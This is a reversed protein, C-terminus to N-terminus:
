WPDNGVCVTNAALGGDEPSQLGISQHSGRKSRPAARAPSRAPIYMFEGGRSRASRPIWTISARTPSNSRLSRPAFLGGGHVARARRLAAWSGDLVPRPDSRLCLRRRRRAYVTRSGTVTDLVGHGQLRRFAAEFHAEEAQREPHRFRALLVNRDLVVASNATFVLDPLGAAPPVLDVVANLDILTRHAAGM